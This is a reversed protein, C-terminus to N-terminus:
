DHTAEAERFASRLGEIDLGATYQPDCPCGQSNCLRKLKKVAADPPFGRAYFDVEVQTGCLKCTQVPESM